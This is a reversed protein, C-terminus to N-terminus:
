SSVLAYKKLKNYINQMCKSHTPRHSIPYMGLITLM